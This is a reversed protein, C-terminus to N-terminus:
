RMDYQHSGTFEGGGPVRCRHRGAQDPGSRSSPEFQRGKARAVLVLHLLVMVTAFAAIAIGTRLLFRKM